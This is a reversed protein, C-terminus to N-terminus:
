EKTSNHKEKNPNKTRTSNSNMKMLEKAGAGPELRAMVSRGKFFDCIIWIAAM